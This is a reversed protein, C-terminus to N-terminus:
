GHRAATFSRLRSQVNYVSNNGALAFCNKFIRLVYFHKQPNREFALRFMLPKGKLTTDPNSM